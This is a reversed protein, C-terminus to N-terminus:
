RYRRRGQALIGRATTHFHWGSVEGTTEVVQSTEPMFNATLCVLKAPPYREGGQFGEVKGTSPMVHCWRCDQPAEAPSSIYCKQPDAKSKFPTKRTYLASGPCETELLCRCLIAPNLPLPESLSQAEQQPETAFVLVNLNKLPSDICWERLTSAHKV